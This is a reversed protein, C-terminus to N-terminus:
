FPMTMADDFRTELMHGRRHRHGNIPQRGPEVPTEVGVGSHRSKGRECGLHLPRICEAVTDM